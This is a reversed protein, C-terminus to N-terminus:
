GTDGGENYILYIRASLEMWHTEQFQLAVKQGLSIDIRSITQHVLADDLTTPYPFATFLTLWPNALSLAAQADELELAKEELLSATARIQARLEEMQSQFTAKSIESLTFAEYISLRQGSFARHKADLTDLEKQLNDLYSRSQWVGADSSLWRKFKEAQRHQNQIQNLVITDLLRKQITNRTHNERRNTGSNGCSFLTLTNGSGKTDVSAQLRRGCHTCFLLGKYLKTHEQYTDSHHRIARGRRQIQLVHKQGLKTFDEHSVYAPHSNPIIIWEEEPIKERQNFPECKRRRSKGAVFDGTYMRNLLIRNVIDAYWICGGENKTRGGSRLYEVREETPAGMETLWISIRNSPIGELTWQFILSVFHSVQPDFALHDPREKDYTYGYPLGRRYVGRARRLDISDSFRRSIDRSYFDNLLNKLIIALAGPDSTATDFGDNIAILRVHYEPFVTELFYGTEIYNRGFRSLDKVLICNIDGAEIDKLMQQFRPRNFNTGTWGDDVYLGCLNLEPHRELYSKLMGVQNEISESVEAYADAMSLRAYIATRNVTPISQPTVPEYQRIQNIQQRQRSKRAM